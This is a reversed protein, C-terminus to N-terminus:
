FKVPLFQTTILQDDTPEKALIGLDVFSKKLLELGKPDFQGDDVVIPMEYDYVRPAIEAPLRAIPATIALTKEKNAKMFAFSAFLGKLFRSVLVPNKAVLEKQAFVVETTLRPAYKDMTVLVRGRHEMELRFGISVDLVVGEVEHAALAALEADFAGLPVITVGNPGWGEQISMQHALWATFSGVTSVSVRRGKMDAITKILPDNGVTLSINKATDGFCAVGIVPSGKVEFAMGPGSGLGFDVADAALGQQLKADGAFDVISVDLGYQQFIGEAIGLDVATFIWAEGQAKGVRVSDAAHASVAVIALGICAAFLRAMMRAIRKYASM